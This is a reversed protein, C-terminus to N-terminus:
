PVYGQAVSGYWDAGDSIFSYLDMTAATPTQTPTGAGSWKVGTFAATGNGTTVAQKLPMTFSQGATATPMTFTTLTSATLTATVVTGATLAPITKTAGVVGLAQVGETYGNIIPNTLTKNTLTQADTTGVVTGAPMANTLANVATDLTNVNTSTYTNGPAWNVPQTM